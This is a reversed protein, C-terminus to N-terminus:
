IIISFILLSLKFTCRVLLFPDMILILVFEVFGCNEFNNESNHEFHIEKLTNNFSNKEGRCFMCYITFKKENSNDKAIQILDKLDYNGPKCLNITHNNITENNILLLGHLNNNFTIIHQPIRFGSTMKNYDQPYAKMSNYANSLDKLTNQLFCTENKKVNFFITCKQPCPIYNIPTNSHGFIIFESHM